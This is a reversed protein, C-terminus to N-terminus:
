SPLRCPLWIQAPGPKGRTLAASTNEGRWCHQAVFKTDLVLRIELLVLVVREVKVLEQGKLELWEGRMGTM